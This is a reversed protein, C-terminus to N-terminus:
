TRSFAQWWGDEPLAFKYREKEGALIATNVDMDAM